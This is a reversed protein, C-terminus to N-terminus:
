KPLVEATTLCYQNRLPFFFAILLKDRGRVQDVHMATFTLDAQKSLFAGDPWCSHYHHNNVHSNPPPTKKSYLGFLEFSSPIVAMLLSLLSM